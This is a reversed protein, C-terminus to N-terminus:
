RAVERKTVEHRYRFTKRLMLKAIWGGLWDMVAGGKLNFEVEDRLRTRGNEGQFEHRHVWRRFPGSVQEDVFYRNKEYGTHLAVWRQRVPGLSLELVVRAGTELGGQREVVRAPPFEPTLKELADAREHFAFVAEVPADIVSEYVFRPV